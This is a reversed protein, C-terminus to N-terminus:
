VSQQQETKRPHYQRWPRNKEPGAAIGMLGFFKEPIDLRDTQYSDLNLMKYFPEFADATFGLDFAADKISNEVDTVRSDTWFKKWAMFNQRSRDEGPFIM